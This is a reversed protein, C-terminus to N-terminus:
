NMFFVLPWFDRAVTGKLMFLVRCIEHSLGKLFVGLSVLRSLNFLILFPFTLLRNSVTGYKGICVACEWLLINCVGMPSEKNIM